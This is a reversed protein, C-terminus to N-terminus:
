ICRCYELLVWGNVSEIYGWKHGDSDTSEKTITYKGLGTYKFSWNDDLIVPSTRIRLNPTTAMVKYPTVDIIDGAVVPTPEMDPVVPKEEVTPETVHEEIAEEVSEVTPEEIVAEEVTTEPVEKEVKEPKYTYVCKSGNYVKYPRNKEVSIEKCKAIADDLTEFTDDVLNSIKNSKRNTGIQFSM